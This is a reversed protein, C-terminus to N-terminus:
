AAGVAEGLHADPISFTVAQAVAPHDLLVEDVERPSVKEGGRNIMEKIRGTIYLYGDAGFQLQGGNHTGGSGPRAASTRIATM